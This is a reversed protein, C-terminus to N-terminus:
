KFRGVIIKSIDLGAEKLSIKAPPVYKNIAQWIKARRRSHMHSVVIKLITMARTGSLFVGFAEQRNGNPMRSSVVIATGLLKGLITAATIMTDEDTMELSLRTTNNNRGFYAEGELIGIIWGLEYDTVDKRNAANYTM